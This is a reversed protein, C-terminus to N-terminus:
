KLGPYDSFFYSMSVNESCRCKQLSRADGWIIECFLFTSRLWENFDEHHKPSGLVCGPISVARSLFRICSRRCCRTRIMFIATAASFEFNPERGDRFLASSFKVAPNAM